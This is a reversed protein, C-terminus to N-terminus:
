TVRQEWKMSLNSPLLPKLTIALYAPFYEKTYKDLTEVVLKTTLKSQWAAIEIFKDVIGAQTSNYAGFIITPAVSVM